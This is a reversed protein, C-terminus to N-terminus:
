NQDADLGVDVGHAPCFFLWAPSSGSRANANCSRAIRTQREIVRELREDDGAAPSSALMPSRRASRASAKRASRPLRSTTRRDSRDHRGREDADVDRRSANSIKLEPNDFPAAHCRVRDDTLSQLFAVLAARIAPSLSSKQLRPIWIAAPQPSPRHTRASRGTGTTDGHPVTRSDGGRNYFAVVRPSRVRVATTSTLATQAINRLDSGEDRRRQSRQTLPGFNGPRRQLARVPSRVQLISPSVM